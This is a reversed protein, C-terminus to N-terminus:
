LGLKKMKASWEPFRALDGTYNPSKPEVIIPAHLDYQFSVTVDILELELSRLWDIYRDPIPIVLHKRGRIRREEVEMQQHKNM